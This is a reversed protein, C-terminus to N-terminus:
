PKTPWTINHYCDAHTCAPLDRLAQRYTKWQEQKEASLPSDPAVAWDSDKLLANRKQRMMFQWHPNYHRKNCDCITMTELDVRHSNIDAIYGPMCGMNPNSACNREAQEHTLNRVQEIAGTDKNYFIYYQRM